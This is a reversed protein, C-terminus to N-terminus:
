YVWRSRTTGADLKYSIPIQYPSIKNLLISTPLSLLSSTFLAPEAATRNTSFTNYLAAHLHPWYWLTPTIASLSSLFFCSATSIISSSTLAHILGCPFSCLRPCSSPYENYNVCLLTAFFLGAAEATNRWITWVRNIVVTKSILILHAHRWEPYAQAAPRWIM